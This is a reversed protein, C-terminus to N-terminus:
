SKRCIFPTMETARGTDPKRTTQEREQVGMPRPEGARMSIQASFSLSPAYHM